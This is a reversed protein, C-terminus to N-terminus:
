SNFTACQNEREYNGIITRFWVCEVILMVTNSLSYLAIATIFSNLYIGILLSIARVIFYATEFVLLGRQRKFVDPIFNISSAISNMAVWPLMIRIYSGAVSWGDGLLWETLSPLVFYLIAFTPVVAMLTFSVFRNFLHSVNIKNHVSEATKQFLVQNFSNAVVNIPRIALTFAMGLFGMEALGFYPTLLFFPLNCSFNNIVARPMDYKPFNVYERAAIRCEDKDVKLLAKMHKAFTAKISILVSALPAFVMSVIMGGSLFGLFGLGCKAGASLGSQMLQYIGIDRYQKNRTYWYNILTWIAQSFVFVPLLFIWNALQPANFLNAIPKSFPIFAICLLSVGVLTSLGNHFCAVARKEDKPLVVSFHIESNALIVLVGGISLFLNLLGFDDPSYLRTLVPYIIIGIVQAVVNASLLTASNHALESHRFQLIKKIGFM